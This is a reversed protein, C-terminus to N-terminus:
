PTALQVFGELDPPTTVVDIPKEAVLEWTERDQGNATYTRCQMRGEVGVIQGATVNISAHEAFPGWLVVKYLDYEVDDICPRRRRAVAVRTVAFSKETSTMQFSPDEVVTGTIITKSLSM